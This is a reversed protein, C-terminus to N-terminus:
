LFKRLNFIVILLVTLDFTKNEEELDLAFNNVM